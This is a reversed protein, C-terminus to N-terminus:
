MTDMTEFETRFVDEFVTIRCTDCIINRLTMAVPRALIATIGRIVKCHLIAQCDNGCSLTPLASPELGLLGIKSGSLTLLLSESSKSPM